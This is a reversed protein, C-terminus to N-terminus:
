DEQGNTWTLYGGDLNAVDYVLITLLSSSNHCGLGVQCHVFVDDHDAIEDHRVRLEDLPINVAGPIAGSAFEEPSRVDVLM